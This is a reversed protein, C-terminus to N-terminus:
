LQVKGGSESQLATTSERTSLSTSEIMRQVAGIQMEIQGLRRRIDSPNPSDPVDRSDLLMGLITQLHTLLATTSWQARELETEKAEYLEWLSFTHGVSCVFQRHGHPEENLCLCGACSPCGIMTPRDDSM